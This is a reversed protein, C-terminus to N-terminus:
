YGKSFQKFMNPRNEMPHFVYGQVWDKYFEKNVPQHLMIGIVDELWIDQLRFYIERRKAPDTELAGQEILQDAEPNNYGCRSAFLGQSHQYPYVFNHPDPYDAGWGIYYVPMQRQRQLDLYTAWEVGRVNIKFKPNLSMVNEALMKLTQERVENGTNFLMDFEFGNQWVKGGWAKRFYDEAKKLDFPYAKLAANFYPLGACIPTAAPIGNGQIIQENYTDFDFAYTFALRVNKDSFFDPPIGKGDLKGSGIAPNDTSIIAMNFNIGRNSLETLGEYVKIGPELLMENYYMPDVLGYDVDGQLLLLKRTSWEEVVRYIARAMAPTPGWYGDFREFVMESGKDWRVLKYPGTGSAIEYLPEKGEEPGNVRAIDAATGNWDGHAIAFDKDIVSCAGYALITLFPAFPKALNFVVSDGKVQIAKDLMEMTLVINGDGDRSGYTGFLPEFLMWMPGGDADIVLHRKFSYAVGEPTLANGSHFKVGKRIPFTYTKGGNTILGNSASPVQTALIPVLKETSGGEYYVLTEYINYICGGSANDYAKAPDLSDVTGYAAYIFTDPNKITKAAVEAKPAEEMAPAPAEEKEKAGGAFAFGAVALILLLILLKKM